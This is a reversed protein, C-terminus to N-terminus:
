KDVILSWCLLEGSDSSRQKKLPPQDFGNSSQSNHVSAGKGPLPPPYSHHESPLDDGSAISSATSASSSAEDGSPVHLLSTQSHLPIGTGWDLNGKVPRDAVIDYNWRQLFRRENDRTLEAVDQALDEQPTDPDRGFLNRRVSRSGPAKQFPKSKGPPRNEAM